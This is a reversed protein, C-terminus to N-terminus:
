DDEQNDDKRRRLIRHSARWAVAGLVAFIGVLATGKQENSISVTAILGGVLILCIGIIALYSLTEVEQHM